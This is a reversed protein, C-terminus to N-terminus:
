FGKKLLQNFEKKTLNNSKDVDYNEFISKVAQELTLDNLKAYDKMGQDSSVSNYFEEYSIKGDENVDEGKFWINTAIAGCSSMLFGVAIFLITRKM